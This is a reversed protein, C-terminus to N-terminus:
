SSAFGRGVDRRSRETAVWVSQRHQKDLTNRQVLWATVVVAAVILLLPPFIISAVLGGLLLLFRAM